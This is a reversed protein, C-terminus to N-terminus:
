KAVLPTNMKKQERPFMWRRIRPDTYIKCFMCTHIGIDSNFCAAWSKSNTL